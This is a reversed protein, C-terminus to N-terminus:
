FWMYYYNLMPKTKIKEEMKDAEYFSMNTLEYNKDLTSCNKLIASLFCGLVIGFKNYIHKHQLKILNFMKHLSEISKTELYNILEYNFSHLDYEDKKLLADKLDITEFMKIILPLTLKLHAEKTKKIIFNTQRKVVIALILLTIFNIIDPILELM